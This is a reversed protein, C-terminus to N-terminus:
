NGSTGVAHVYFILAKPNPEECCGCDIDQIPVFAIDGIEVPKFKKDSLQLMKNAQHEQLRKVRSREVIELNLNKSEHEM